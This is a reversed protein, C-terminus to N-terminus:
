LLFEKWDVRVAHLPLVLDFMRDLEETQVPKLPGGYDKGYSIHYVWGEETLSLGALRGVAGTGLGLRSLPYGPIVIADPVEFSIRVGGAADGPEFFAANELRNRADRKGCLTVGPFLSSQWYFFTLGTLILRGNSDPMRCDFREGLRCPAEIKM